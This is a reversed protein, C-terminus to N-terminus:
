DRQAETEKNLCLFYCLSNTGLCSRTPIAALQGWEMVGPAKPLPCYCTLFGPGRSPASLTPLAQQSDTRGQSSPNEGRPIPTAWRLCGGHHPRSQHCDIM